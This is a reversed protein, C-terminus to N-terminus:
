GRVVDGRPGSFYARIWPNENNLLEKLTGVIARGELLVAIRDTLSKLSNLDHTVMILTLHLASRLHLLLEDYAGAALPDLGATPEDLFLLAPDLALARALAVRKIMGGSLQAPYKFADEEQLGVLKLKLFSLDQALDLPMKLIERLPLQINEGVTLSTFLAGGQFQVGWKPRLQDLGKPLLHDLIRISGKQPQQLGLLARLLVSKGSGSGGVIGLIEGPYVDLNLNHHIRKKGFKTELKRVQILPTSSKM